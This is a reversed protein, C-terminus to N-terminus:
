AVVGFFFYVDFSPNLDRNIRGQVVEHRSFMDRLIMQNRFNLGNHVDEDEMHTVIVEAHALDFDAIAAFFKSEPVYYERGYLSYVHCCKAPHAKVAVLVNHVSLDNHRFGPLYHQLVVLGVLVQFVVTILEQESARSALLTALTGDFQEQFSIHNYRMQWSNNNAARHRVHPKVLRSFNKYDASHYTYVFHPCVNWKIFQNCLLALNRKVQVSDHAIIDQIRHKIPSPANNDSNDNDSTKNCDKHSASHKNALRVAELLSAQSYYSLRVVVDVQRKVKRHIYYVPMTFVDNYAGGGLRKLGDFTDKQKAVRALARGMAGMDEVNRDYM